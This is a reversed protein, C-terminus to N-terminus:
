AEPNMARTFGALHTPKLDVALGPLQRDMELASESPTGYYEARRFEFLEPGLARTLQEGLRDRLLELHSDMSAADPHVQIVTMETGDENVFAHFAIMQPEHEEVVEVVAQWSRKVEELKGEKIGLTGVYIFPEAM